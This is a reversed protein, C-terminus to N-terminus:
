LLKSILIFNMSRAPEGCTFVSNVDAVAFGYATIVFIQQMIKVYAHKVLRYLEEIDIIGAPYAGIAEM